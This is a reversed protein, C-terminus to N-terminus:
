PNQVRPLTIGLEAARKGMAAVIADYDARGRMSAWRAKFTKYEADTIAPALVTLRQTFSANIDMTGAVLAVSVLVFLFLVSITAAGVFYVFRRVNKAANAMRSLVKHSFLLTAALLPIELLWLLTLFGYLNRDGLAANRYIEDVYGQHVSGGISVVAHWVLRLLPQIFILVVLSSVIGSGIGIKLAKDDM